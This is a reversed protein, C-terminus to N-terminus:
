RMSRWTLLIARREEARPYAEVLGAKPPTTVCTMPATTSTLTPESLGHKARSSLQESHLSEDLM